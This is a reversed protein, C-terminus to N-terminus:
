KLLSGAPEIPEGPTVWKPLHRYAPDVGSDTELISALQTTQPIMTLGGQGHNDDLGARLYVTPEQSKARSEQTPVM